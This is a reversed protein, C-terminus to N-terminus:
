YCEVEEEITEKIKKVIQGYGYEKTQLNKKESWESIRRAEKLVPITKVDQWREGAPSLDGERIANKLRFKFPDIKLHHAMLDM